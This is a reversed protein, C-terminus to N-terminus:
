RAHRSLGAAGQPCIAHQAAPDPPPRKDLEAFVEAFAKGARTLKLTPQLDIPDKYDELWGHEKLARLLGLAYSREAEADVADGGGLAGQRYAPQAVVALTIELVLERTLVEAYDAEPGHVRDHLRRLVAACAERDQWTLPRFFHERPAEFFHGPRDRRGGQFSSRPHTRSHYRFGAAGIARV